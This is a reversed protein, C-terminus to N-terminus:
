VLSRFRFASVSEQVFINNKRGSKGIASKM